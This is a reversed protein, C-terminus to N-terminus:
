HFYGTRFGYQGTMIAVRTPTCYPTAYCTEFRMGERAIRDMNPTRHEKNGYCGLEKSGMDDILVLILNPPRKKVAAATDSDPAALVAALALTVIGISHM